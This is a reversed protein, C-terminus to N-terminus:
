FGGRDNGSLPAHTLYAPKVIAWALASGLLPGSCPTALLASLVGKSFAGGYGEGGATGVLGPAPIEWIGLFSLGFAFVIAALSVSFATSSFQEGWGLGAFVALTALVLMVSM